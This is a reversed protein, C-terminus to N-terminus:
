RAAAAPAAQYSVPLMGDVPLRQLAPETATTRALHGAATGVTAQKKSQQNAATPAQAVLTIVSPNAGEPRQVASWWTAAAMVALTLTNATWPLWGTPLTSFSAMHALIRPNRPRRLAVLARMRPHRAGTQPPAIPTQTVSEARRTVGLQAPARLVPDRAGCRGAVLLSV